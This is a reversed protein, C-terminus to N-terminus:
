SSHGGDEGGKADWTEVGRGKCQIEGYTLSSGPTELRVRRSNHTMTNQPEASSPGTRYPDHAKSVKRGPFCGLSAQLM